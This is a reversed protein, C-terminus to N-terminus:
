LYLLWVYHGNEVERLNPHNMYRNGLVTHTDIDNFHIEDFTYYKNIAHGLYIVMFLPLMIVPVFVMFRIAADRIEFVARLLIFFALFGMIVIGSLSKLLVLFVPFWILSVM